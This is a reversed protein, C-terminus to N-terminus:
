VGKQQGNGFRETKHWTTKRIALIDGIAEFFGLSIHWMNFFFVFILFPLLLIRKTAGDLFCATGVEYFPAFNGFTNYAGLFLLFFVGAFIQMEGLFFLAMADALGLLLILPIFYTVLLLVGDLKERGSLFRSKLLPFLSKFMVVNHGRSWRRIQQARVKWTEPVEEYCEARNAYLVKWGNISLRYTLDTDEALVRTDFGGLDIVTTRRFGGVTGGYQPILKLNYRAQQDVQYGGLRELDLLRTLMNTSVNMPIVRGMVAGVEPDNFGVVINHIINRPPLYDADFVVIIEGTARLMAENLAAPKGREGESRHLPRIFSFRAAYDDLITPTRDTSFDNIPIVELKDPPYDLRILRELIAVAVKEENHMPVLVSVTRLDSDLIDHYDARQEGFLRNLTFILHRVAYLLMIAITIALYIKMILVAMEM